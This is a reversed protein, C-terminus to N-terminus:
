RCLLSLRVFVSVASHKPAPSREVAIVTSFRFTARILRNWAFDDAVFKAKMENSRWLSSSCGIGKGVKLKIRKENTKECKLRDCIQIRLAQTQRGSNPAGKSACEKSVFACHPKELVRNAVGTEVHNGSAAGSLKQFHELLTEVFQRLNM